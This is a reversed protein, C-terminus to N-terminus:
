EMERVLKERQADLALNVELVNVLDTGVLGGLPATKKQHLLKEVDETIRKELTKGLKKEMRQRVEARAADIKEELLKRKGGDMEAKAAELLRAVAPDADLIKQAQKEAVRNRLQYQANKLTITPDLGSGSAMVMDGPVKELVITGKHLADRNGQLWLDFFYAQVDSGETVPKIETGDVTPWTGPHKSAFETFFTKASAGYDSKVEEEPKKLWQAVAGTNDKVWQEALVAYTEAWRAAFTPEKQVQTQFWGEVDKGVPQGPTTPSSAAYKVM